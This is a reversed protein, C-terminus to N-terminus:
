ASAMARMTFALSPLSFQVSPFVMANHSQMLITSPPKSTRSPTFPSWEHPNMKADFTVSASKTRTNPGVMITSSTFLWSLNEPILIGADEQPGHTPACEEKLGYTSVM